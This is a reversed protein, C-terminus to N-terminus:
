LSISFMLDFRRLFVYGGNKILLIMFDNTTAVGDNQQGVQNHFALHANKIYLTLLEKMPFRM